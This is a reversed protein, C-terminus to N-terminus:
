LLRLDNDLFRGLLYFITEQTRPYSPIPVGPPLGSQVGDPCHSKISYGACFRMGRCRPYLPTPVGPPLCLEDTGVRPTEVESDSSDSPSAEDESSEISHQSNGKNSDTDASEEEFLAADAVIGVCLLANRRYERVNGDMLNRLLSSQRIAHTITNRKSAQMGVVTDKSCLVDYHEFGPYQYHLMKLDVDVRALLSQLRMEDPIVESFGRQLTGIDNERWDSAPRLRLMSLEFTQLLAEIEPTDAYHHTDLVLQPRLVKELKELVYIDFKDLTNLYRQYVPVKSLAVIRKAYHDDSDAVFSEMQEKRRSLCSICLGILLLPVGPIRM